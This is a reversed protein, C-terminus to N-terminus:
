EVIEFHITDVHKGIRLHAEVPSRCLTGAYRYNVFRVNSVGYGEALGTITSPQPWHQNVTCDQILIDSIRSLGNRKKVEFCVLKQQYDTYPKEFRNGIFRVGHIHAGDRAYISMGRDCEVVDNNSFTINSM